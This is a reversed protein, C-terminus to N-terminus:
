DHCEMPAIRMGRPIRAPGVHPSVYLDDEGAHCGGISPKISILIQQCTTGSLLRYLPYGRVGDWTLKPTRMTDAYVRQVSQRRMTPTDELEQIVKDKM